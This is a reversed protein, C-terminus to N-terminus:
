MILRFKLVEHSVINARLTIKSESESVVFSATQTSSPTKKADNFDTSIITMNNNSHSRLVSKVEWKDFDHM